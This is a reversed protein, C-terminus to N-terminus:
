DYNRLSANIGKKKFIDLYHLAIEKPVEHLGKEICGEREIFKQLFLKQSGQLWESMSLIDEETILEHVLTTRFEYAIKNRKLIEVTFGVKEPFANLGTTKPYGEKSSKVDVAVYDVLRNEIIMELMDPNTGNTDLKVDYGLAKIRRAYDPLDSFM